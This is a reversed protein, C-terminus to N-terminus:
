FYEFCVDLTLFNFDLFISLMNSTLGSARCVNVWFSLEGAFSGRPPFTQTQPFARTKLPEGLRHALVSHPRKGTILFVVLGNGSTLAMIKRSEWNLYTM